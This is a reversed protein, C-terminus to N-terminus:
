RKPKTPKPALMSPPPKLEGEMREVYDEVARDFLESRNRGLRDALAELRELLKGNIRFGVLVKTTRAKPVTFM